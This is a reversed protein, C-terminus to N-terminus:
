DDEWQVESFLYNGYLKKDLSSLPNLLSRCVGMSEDLNEIRSKDDESELGLEKKFILMQKIGYMERYNSHLEEIKERWENPEPEDSFAGNHIDSIPCVTGTM